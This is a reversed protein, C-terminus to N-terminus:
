NPLTSKSSNQFQDGFTVYDKKDSFRKFTNRFISLSKQCDFTMSKNLILLSFTTRKIGYAPNPDLWVILVSCLRMIYICTHMYGIKQQKVPFDM